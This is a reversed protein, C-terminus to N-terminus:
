IRFYDHYNMFIILLDTVKNMVNKLLNRIGFLRIVKRWCLMKLKIFLHLVSFLMKKKCLAPAIQFPVHKGTDLAYIHSASCEPEVGISDCDHKLTKVACSAGAILESGGM